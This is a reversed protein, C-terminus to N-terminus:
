GRTASLYATWLLGTVSVFPARWYRAVVAFNVLQVPAWVVWAAVCDEALNQRCRVLGDMLGRLPAGDAAAASNVAGQLGYFLPFYVAPFVILQDMSVQTVARWIRSQVGLKSLVAPFARSYILQQTVGLYVLGFLAFSLGRRWDYSWDQRLLLPAVIPEAQALATSQGHHNADARWAASPQQLRQESRQVILDICLKSSVGFVASSVLPRARVVSHLRGAAASVPPLLATATQLPRLLYYWM